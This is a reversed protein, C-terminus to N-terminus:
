NSERHILKKHEQSWADVYNTILNKYVNNVLRQSKMIEAYIDAKSAALLIVAAITLSASTLIIKLKRNM